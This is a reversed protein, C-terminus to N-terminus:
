LLYAVRKKLTHLDPASEIIQDVCTYGELSLLDINISASRVVVALSM